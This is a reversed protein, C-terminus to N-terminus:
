NISVEPYFDLIFPLHTYASLFIWEGFETQNLSNM